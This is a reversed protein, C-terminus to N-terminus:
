LPRVITRGPGYGEFRHSAISSAKLRTEDAVFVGGEWYSVIVGQQAMEIRTPKLRLEASSAPDGIGLGDAGFRYYTQHQTLRDDLEEAHDGVNGIAEDQSDQRGVIINVTENATIDLSDGFAPEVHNVSISGAKIANATVSEAELDPATIGTIVVTAIESADGVRGVTDFPVLRVHVTSGVEGRISAGGPAVLPTGVREWPGAESPATEMVVHSFGRPHEDQEFEGDWRAAVLGLSSTLVPATPAPLLGSPTAGTVEIPDSPDGWVGINSRARVRLSAVSASPIRLTATTGSVRTTALGNAVEYEDVTVLEDDVSLAVEDWTVVVTSISTGDPEFAGVNSQVSLGTPPKPIISSPVAPTVAIEGSWESERGDFSRARVKVYRDVGPEWETTTFSLAQTTAVISPESSASRAAVEYAVVDVGSGDDAQVVEDWAVTVTSQATGDERWSGANSEVHLGTPAGPAPFTADPIPFVAGGGGIAGGISGAGTRRAQKAAQTLLKDGVIVRATVSADQKKVQIGIIRQLSKGHRTKSTIVDGLNFDEWPRPGNDSPTWDFSYERKVARGGVLASQALTTATAHDSVGSQTLTAELRGFRSSAGTNNLYLWYDAKEPVVTLHTFVDDFSSKTPRATFVPGGFVLNERVEGTGPRFLRLKTGETWWDCLGQDTISQLVTSLPTLLRWPQKVKEDATWPVGASDASSSFDRSIMSGWGRNQAEFMMGGIITGASAPHGSETWEREGNVAGQAWHLYTRGLMWTVFGQATFRVTGKPDADDSDDVSAMFLGNRPQKFPGGISYEVAVVQPADMRGAVKESVVFSLTSTASDM